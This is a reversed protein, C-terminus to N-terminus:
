IPLDQICKELCDNDAGCQEECSGSGGSDAPEEETTSCGPQMTLAAFALMAVLFKKDLEFINKM